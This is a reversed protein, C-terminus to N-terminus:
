DLLHRSTAGVDADLAARADPPPPEEEITVRDRGAQKSRYMADDARSLLMGLDDGVRAIAGGVSVTPVVTRGDASVGSAAVLARVRDAASRLGDTDAAPCVAVFEDGGWRGVSDSGRVAAATTTAVARLIADGAEHGHEDNISKFHDIDVFLVGFAHGYRELDDLRARVTM